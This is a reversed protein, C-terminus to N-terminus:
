TEKNDPFAQTSRFSLSATKTEAIDNETKQKVQLWMKRVGSVSLPSIDYGYMM